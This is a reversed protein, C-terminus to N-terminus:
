RGAVADGCCQIFMVTHPPHLESYAQTVGGSLCESNIGIDKLTRSGVRRHRTMPWAQLSTEQEWHQETKDKAYGRDRYSHAAEPLTFTMEGSSWVGGM